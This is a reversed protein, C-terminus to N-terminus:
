IWHLLKPPAARLASLADVLATITGSAEDFLQGKLGLVSFFFNTLRFVSKFDAPMAYAM